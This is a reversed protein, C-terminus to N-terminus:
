STSRNITDLELALTLKLPGVGTVDDPSVDAVSDLGVDTGTTQAVTFSSESAVIEQGLPVRTPLM